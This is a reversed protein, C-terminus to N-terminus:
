AHRSSTKCKMVRISVAQVFGCNGLWKSRLSSDWKESLEKEKDLLSLSM